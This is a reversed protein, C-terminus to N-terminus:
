VHARGIQLHIDRLDYGEAIIQAVDMEREVLRELLLDRAFEPPQAVHAQLRELLPGQEALQQERPRALEQVRLQVVRVRGRHEEARAGLHAGRLRQQALRELLKLLDFQEILPVLGALTRRFGGLLLGAM